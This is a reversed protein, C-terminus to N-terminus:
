QTGRKSLYYIINGIIMAAILWIHAFSQSIMSGQGFGYTKTLIEFEAAGRLGNNVGVIQGTDLYPIATQAMSAVASSYMPTGYVGQVYWLWDTFGGGTTLHFILDIDNADKIDKMMPLDELKNGYYDVEMLSRIDKAYAPVSGGATPGIFGLNVFDEGYTMKDFANVDELSWEILQPGADWTSLMILKFGRRAGYKVMANASPQLEAMAGTAYDYTIQVVSGEPLSELFEFGRMTEPSIEIPISFKVYFPLAILLMLIAEIYRKDLNLLKDTISM